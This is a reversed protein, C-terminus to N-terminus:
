CQSVVFCPPRFACMSVCGSVWVCVCGVGCVCVCGARQWSPESPRAVRPQSLGLSSSCMLVFSFTISSILPDFYSSSGKPVTSVLLGRWSKSLM